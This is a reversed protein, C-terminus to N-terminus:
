LMIFAKFLYIIQSFKFHLSRPSGVNHNTSIDLLTMHTKLQSEYKISVEHFAVILLRTSLCDQKNTIAKKRCKRLLDDTLYNLIDNVDVDLPFCPLSKLAGLVTFINGNNNRTNKYKLPLEMRLSTCFIQSLRIM